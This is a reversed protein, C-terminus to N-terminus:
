AEPLGAGEVSAVEAASAPRVEVEPVPIPFGMPRDHGDRPQDAPMFGLKALRQLWATAFGQMVDNGRELSCVTGLDSCLYLRMLTRKNPLPMFDLAGVPDDGLQLQHLVPMGAERPALAAVHFHEGKWGLTPAVAKLHPLVLAQEGELMWEYSPVPGHDHQQVADDAERTAM